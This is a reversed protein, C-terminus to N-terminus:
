FAGPIRLGHRLMDQVMIEGLADRLRNEFDFLDHTTDPTPHAKPAIHSHPRLLTEVLQSASQASPATTSPRGTKQPSPILPAHSHATPPAFPTQAANHPTQATHPQLTKAQFPSPIPAISRAADSINQNIETPQVPTQAALRTNASQAAISNKLALLPAISQFPAQDSPLASDRQTESQRQNPASQRQAARTLIQAITHAQAPKSHSQIPQNSAANPAFIAPTERVLQLNPKATEAHESAAPKSASHAPPTTALSPRTASTQAQTEQRQQDPTSIKVPAPHAINAGANEGEPLDFELSPIEIDGTQPAGIRRMLGIHALTLVSATSADLAHGMRPRIHALPNTM